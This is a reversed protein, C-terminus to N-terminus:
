TIPPSKPIVGLVRISSTRETLVQRFFGTLFGQFNPNTPLTTDTFPTPHQESLRSKTMLNTLCADAARTSQLVSWSFPHKALQELAFALTLLAEWVGDRM